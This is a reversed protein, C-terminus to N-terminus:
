ATATSALPEATIELEGYIFVIATACQNLVDHVGGIGGDSGRTVDDAEVEVDECVGGAVEEGVWGTHTVTGSPGDAICTAGGGADTPEFVVDCTAADCAVGIVAFFVLVLREFVEITEGGVGVGGIGLQADHPVGVGFLLRM